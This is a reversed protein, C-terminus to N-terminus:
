ITLIYHKTVKILRVKMMRMWVLSSRLLRWLWNLPDSKESLFEQLCNDFYEKTHTIFSEEGKTVEPSTVM